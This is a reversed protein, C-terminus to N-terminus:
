AIFIISKALELKKTDCFWLSSGSISHLHSLTSCATASQPLPYGELKLTLHPIVFVDSFSILM